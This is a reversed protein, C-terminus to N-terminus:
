ENVAGGKAMNKLLLGFGEKGLWFRVFDSVGRSTLTAGSLGDIEYPADKSEPQVKGKIVRIKLVSNKDFIKKGKWISTWLPNEIEGGLGPTEGQEYFTIGRVTEGASDVSLFGYISSWLGKGYVPLVIQKVKSKEKVIYAVIKKPIEKTGLIVDGQPVPIINDGHSMYEKLGKAFTKVNFKETYTGKQLDILIPTVKKFEQMISGGEKLLDACLLINKKREREKKFGQKEKLFVAASSVLISCVLAVSAAVFVMKGPSDASM